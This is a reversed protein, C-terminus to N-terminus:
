FILLRKTRKKYQLYADGHAEQLYAEELRIQIHIVFYTTLTLFFTIANPTILFIGLVSIIMGLFIPNRSIKFIGNTVLLTANKEDIGIRWSSSMQFQAIVIWILSIHILVLGIWMLVPHQLYTIPVAYQYVKPGITFMIVAIFLLIILLKMVGGIYNHATPEKGFTIPNIGTQKWTRYTPFVFSFAIYLLLYAPLYFRLSTEM